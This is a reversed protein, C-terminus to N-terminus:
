GNEQKPAGGNAGSSDQTKEPMECEVAAKAVHSILGLKLGTDFSVKAQYHIFKGVIMREAVDLKQMVGSLAARLQAFQRVQRDTLNGRRLAYYEVTRALNENFGEAGLMQAIVRLSKPRPRRSGNREHPM